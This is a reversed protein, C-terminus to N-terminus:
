IRAMKYGGGSKLESSHWSPTKYCPNIVLLVPSNGVCAGSFTYEDQGDDGFLDLPLPALSRLDDMKSSSVMPELQKVERRKLSLRGAVFSQLAYEGTELFHEVKEQRQVATEIM